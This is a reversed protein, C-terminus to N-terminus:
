EVPRALLARLREHDFGLLTHGRVVFTPTGRAGRAQYEALCAADREILCERHPVRQEILWASARKCFVCNTSSLMLIDGPRALERLAQAQEADVGHGAWRSLGWFAAVILILAAIETSRPQKRM